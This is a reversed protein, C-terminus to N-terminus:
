GHADTVSACVQRYIRAAHESPIESMKRFFSAASSEVAAAVRLYADDTGRSSERWGLITVTTMLRVNILDHLIDIENRSLPTEGHYGALFEAILTLPNGDLTRLYSAAVAVDIILPSRLMDGFDIVGVIKSSTSEELLVNDPNMDNHIVQKRLTSFVPRISSEFNDLTRSALDRTEHDDIYQLLERLSAAQKMDWLLSQDAGPHSFDSLARGLRALYRGMDGALVTDPVAGGLPTGELYSVVRAVHSRGKLVVTISYEGSTARVVAPTKLLADAKAQIHLLAQIQFDTVLPNELSNAIKLVFREGDPLTLRFNQDRESVLVAATVSLGYYNRAIEVAQRRTFSPPGSAVVDMPNQTTM